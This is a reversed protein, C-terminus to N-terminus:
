QKNFNRYYRVLLLTDGPQFEKVAAENFLDYVLLNASKCTNVGDVNNIKKSFYYSFLPYNVAGNKITLPVQEFGTCSGGVCNYEPPYSRFNRHANTCSLAGDDGPIISSARDKVLLITNGNVRSFHATFEAISASDNSVSFESYVITDGSIILRCKGFLTDIKGAAFINGPGNYFPSRNIGNRTAFGIVINSDTIIGKQTYLIAADHTASFGSWYTGEFDYVKEKDKKCSFLTLLVFLIPAYKM